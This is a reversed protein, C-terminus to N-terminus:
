VAAKMEAQAAGNGHMVWHYRFAEAISNRLVDDDWPKVHFRFVAGSNTAEIISDVATYGSLMIRITNPYMVKVRSLFETGSMGPMREDSLVVQVDHSALLALGEAGSKGRLIRYGDRRLLRALASSVQEEDDVILITSQGAHGSAPAHEGKHESLLHEFEDAPLPRSFYYGQIQDCRHRRLYAFQEETEVGEAIVQL